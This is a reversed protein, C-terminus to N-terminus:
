RGVGEGEPVLQALALRRGGDLRGAELDVLTRDVFADHKCLPRLIDQVADHEARIELSIGDKAGQVQADFRENETRRWEFRVLAGLLSTSLVAVCGFALLLRLSLTVSPMTRQLGM